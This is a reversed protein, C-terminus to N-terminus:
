DAKGGTKLIAGAVKAPVLALSTPALRRSGPKGFGGLDSLRRVHTGAEESRGETDQCPNAHDKERYQRQRRPFFDLWDSGIQGALDLV